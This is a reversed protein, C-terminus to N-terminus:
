ILTILEFNGSSNSSIHPTVKRIWLLRSIHSLHHFHDIGNNKLMIM